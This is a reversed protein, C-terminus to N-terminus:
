WTEPNFQKMYPNFNREDDLTTASDHGPYVAYDGNLTFLKYTISDYLAQPDGGPLDSRGVSLKFLTDGSFLVRENELLYCMGGETHGPTAIAKITFGAAKFVDGDNLLRDAHVSRVPYSTMTSLNETDDHLAASDSKNILVQAGTEEKLLAVGLIHDFHGHTLLIHTPKLDQETLFALAKNANAPDVIFCEGEKAGYVVYTNTALPGSIITSLQM